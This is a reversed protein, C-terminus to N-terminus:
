NKKLVQVDAPINSAIVHYVVYYNERNIQLGYHNELYSLNPPYGGEVVYCQLACQEVATQLAAAGEEELNKRGAAALFHWSHVILVILLVIIWACLHRNRKDSYM